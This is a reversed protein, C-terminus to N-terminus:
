PLSAADSMLERPGVRAGFLGELDHAASQRTYHLLEHALVRALASGLDRASIRGGSLQLLPRIYLEIAPEIMDGRRRALGLAQPYRRPPTARLTVTVVAGAPVMMWVARPKALGGVFAKLDTSGKAGRAVLDQVPSAHTDYVHLEHGARMLRVVMNAGMRGLGIMGLQM